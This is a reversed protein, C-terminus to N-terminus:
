QRSGMTSTAKKEAKKEEVPCMINASAKRATAQDVHREESIITKAISTLERGGRAAM